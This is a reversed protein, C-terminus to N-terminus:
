GSIGFLGLFVDASSGVSPLAFWVWGLVVYHFTLLTGAATYAKKWVPRTELRPM